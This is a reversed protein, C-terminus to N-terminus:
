GAARLARHLLQPDGLRHRLTRELGAIPYLNQPARPDKFPESAYRPLVAQSTAALAVAEDVSLESACEVRVIGAWPSGGPGPLRLYWSYREWTTGLRFVPTREGAALAGVVRNLDAPLYASHQSKIMGIARPVNTRGRLPGDIVLLDDVDDPAAARANAACIIELEALKQQLALSLLDFVQKGPDPKAHAVTWTGLGTVIDDADEATTLLSRRVEAIDVTAASRTSRVVGAAYSACLAPAQEGGDDPNLWLRAEVRRVGDVFLITSPETTASAAIPRWGADPVEVDTTLEAKSEALEEVEQLSSGYDPAWGDVMFRM